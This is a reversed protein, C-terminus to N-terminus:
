GEVLRELPPRKGDRNVEQHLRRALDFLQASTHTPPVTIHLERGVLRSLISRDWLRQRVRKAERVNNFIVETTNMDM